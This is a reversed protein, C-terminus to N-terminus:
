FLTFLNFDSNIRPPGPSFAKPTGSGSRLGSNSSGQGLSFIRYQLLSTACYISIVSISIVICLLHM